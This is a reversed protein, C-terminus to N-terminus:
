SERLVVLPIRLVTTTGVTITSPLPFAAAVTTTTAVGGLTKTLEASVLTVARFTATANDAALAVYFLAGKPINVATFTEVTTTNAAPSATSGKSWLRTGAADYLGIDYNGSQTGSVWVLKTLAVSGALTDLETQTAPDFALDAIPIGGGPKTYKAAIAANITSVAADFEAQTEPDFALDGLQVSIPFRTWHAALDGAFAAGSTHADNAIYVQGAQSVPQGARYVTRAAWPLIAGIVSGALVEAIAAKIEEPTTRPGQIFQFSGGPSIPDNANLFAM